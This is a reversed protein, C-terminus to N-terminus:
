AFAWTLSGRTTHWPEVSFTVEAHEARILLGEMGVYEMVFCDLGM